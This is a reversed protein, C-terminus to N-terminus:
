DSFISQKQAWDTPRLVRVVELLEQVLVLEWLHYPRHSHDFYSYLRLQNVYGCSYFIDRGPPCLPWLGSGWERLTLERTVSGWYTQSVIIRIMNGNEMTMNWWRWCLKFRKIGVAVHNQDVSALLNADDCLTDLELIAFLHGSPWDAPDDM